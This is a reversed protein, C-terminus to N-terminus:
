DASNDFHAYCEIRTGKPLRLPTKLRYTSQWNFDYKPVSLLTEKKGDPYFAVYKFDKGRLHMHPMLSFLIVDKDFTSRSSVPHNKASPPIFFLRQAIGRTRVESKPPKKAFVLGVSSRDKRQVGDPTYHMQFVLAFGKPLKKAQGPELKTPMDGPAYATLMGNGIGDAPLFNARSETRRAPKQDKAPKPGPRRFKAPDV